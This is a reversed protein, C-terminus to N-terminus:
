IFEQMMNQYSAYRRANIENKKVAQRVACAPEKIHICDNYKCEASLARIERFGHMIKEKDLKPLTFERVGPSDILEGGLPLDYLTTVSTTHKGQSINESIEQTEIKLTPILANILSSKGVGSQGVFICTKDKLCEVLTNLGNGTTASTQICPYALQSYKNQIEEIITEANDLENKNIVIIATASLNEAAVIYHDILELSPEPQIANVIVMADINAAVVKDAYETQRALENKRPLM